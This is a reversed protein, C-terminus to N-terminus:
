QHARSDRVVARSRPASSPCAEGIPHPSLQDQEIRDEGVVRNLALAWIAKARDGRQTGVQYPVEGIVARWPVAVDRQQWAAPGDIGAIVRETEGGILQAPWPHPAAIDPRNLKLAFVVLLGLAASM